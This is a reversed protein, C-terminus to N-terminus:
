FDANFLRFTASRFYYYGKTYKGRNLTVYHFIWDSKVLFSFILWVQENNHKHLSITVNCNKLKNPAFLFADFCIQVTWYKVYRIYNDDNSYCIIVIPRSTTFHHLNRSLNGNIYEYIVLQTRWLFILFIYVKKFMWRESYQIATRNLYKNTATIITGKLLLNILLLPFIIVLYM